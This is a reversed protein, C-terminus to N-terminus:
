GNRIVEIPSLKLSKRAPILSAIVSSVVAIVGSFAMFGYNTYIPVVPTGDPNLAFTTFMVILGLGLIIGAISGAIGLILGQFLFILSATSNKVGMAKLIGLQKSKQMVTIALVSSIGLLVSILVFIQIMISSVSQGNLGSLLQENQSQWNEVKLTKDNLYKSLETATEQAKFIDSKPVQMEISTIKDSFGFFNQSTKLDVILWNKNISSVKFDYFGKVTFTQKTGDPKIVDLKSGIELSMIDKFEKGALVENEKSINSGEYIIDQIKYIGQARDLSFGRILVPETNDGYKAFASSDSSVSVDELPIGSAEIKNLKDEWSDILKDDELSTITIHPSSGITREILSQQLGQILLGIFIQVSVGIAIGLAILITQGKGFKLFRTAVKLPFM